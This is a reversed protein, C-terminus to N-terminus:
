QARRTAGGVLQGALPATMTQTAMTQAVKAKSARSAQAGRGRWRLRSSNIDLKLLEAAAGAAGKRRRAADVKAGSALQGSAVCGSLRRRCLNRGELQHVKHKPPKPPGDVRLPEGSPSRRRASQVHATNNPVFPGRTQLERTTSSRLCAGRLPSLLWCCSCFARSATPRRPPPPWNVGGGGVRGAGSSPESQAAQLRLRRLAVFSQSCPFPQTLKNVLRGDPPLPPATTTPWCLLMCVVLREFCCSISAERREEEPGNLLQWYPLM